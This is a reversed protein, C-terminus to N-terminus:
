PEEDESGHRQREVDDGFLKAIEPDSASMARLKARARVRLERGLLWMLVHEEHTKCVDLPAFMLWAM